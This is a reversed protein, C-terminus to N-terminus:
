GLGGLVLHVSHDLRRSSHAKVPNMTCLSYVPCAISQSMGQDREGLDDYGCRETRGDSHLALQASLRGAQTGVHM